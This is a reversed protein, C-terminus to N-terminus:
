PRALEEAAGRRSHAPPAVRTKEIFAISDHIHLGGVLGAAASVQEGAKHYWHHMDDIMQKLKAVFSQDSRYGGGFDRWYATHLDEVVYLGGESLTPFLTEFSARQHAAMHSGDDLVIDVGGMEDVVRRLFAPDDQSGIRIANGGEGDFAACAPNVDVGFLVAERGFYDRWIELSGGFSVGIELMRLPRRASGGSADPFGERFPSFYRDYLPLYHHWKHVIRRKHGFFALEIPGADPGPLRACNVDHFPGIDAPGDRVPDPDAAPDPQAVPKRWLM